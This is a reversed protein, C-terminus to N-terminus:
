SLPLADGGADEEVEPYVGVLGQSLSPLEQANAAGVLVVGQVSCGPRFQAGLVALLGRGRMGVTGQGRGAVRPMADSM